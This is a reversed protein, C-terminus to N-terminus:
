GYLFRQRRCDGCLNWDNADALDYNDHCSTCVLHEPAPDEDPGDVEDEGNLWEIEDSDSFLEEEEEEELEELDSLHEELLNVSVQDDDPEDDPEPEPDPDPVDVALAELDEPLEELTCYPDM